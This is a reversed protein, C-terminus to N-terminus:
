LLLFLLVLLLVPFFSLLHLFFAKLFLLCFFYSSLQIKKKMYKKNRSKLLNVRYASMFMQWLLLYTPLNLYQVTSLITEWILSLESTLPKVPLNSFCLGPVFLPSSDFSTPLQNPLEMFMLVNSLPATQDTLTHFSNPSLCLLLFYILSEWVTCYLVRPASRSAAELSGTSDKTFCLFAAVSRCHHLQALLNKIDDPWVDEPNSILRSM